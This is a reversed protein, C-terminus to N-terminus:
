AIPRIQKSDTFGANQNLTQLVTATQYIGQILSYRAVMDVSVFM